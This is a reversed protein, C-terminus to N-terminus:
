REYKVRDREVQKRVWGIFEVEIIFNERCDECCFETGALVYGHCNLCETNPQETM